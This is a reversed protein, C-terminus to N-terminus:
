RGLTRVLRLGFNDIGPNQAGFIRRHSFHEWALEVAWRSTLRVGLAANPNFLIRSGFSTRDQYIAYRRDAEATSIGPAFPDPTFRYGDHITVGIGAQGYVRGRFVHQRWEAGISAFDTRGATNVQLKATLRPKLPFRVPGTRYVIQVDVTGREEEGEYVFGPPLQPFVLREGVPHIRSAHQFIGLAVEPSSRSAPPHAQPTMDQAGAPVTALLLAGGLVNKMAM